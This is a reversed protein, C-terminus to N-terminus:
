NQKTNELQAYSWCPKSKFDSALVSPIRPSLLPFILKGEWNAVWPLMLFTTACQRADSTRPPPYTKKPSSKTGSCCITHTGMSLVGEAYTWLKSLWEINGIEREPEEWINPRKIRYIFRLLLQTRNLHWNTLISYLATERSMMESIRCWIIM